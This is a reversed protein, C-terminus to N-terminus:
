PREILNQLIGLTEKKSGAGEEGGPGVCSPCGNACGCQITLEYANQILENHVNFLWNSFGIGAPINDYIVVTPNGDGLPSKPDAHVGLDRTDCMLFLPALNGLLYSLGALGSRIRVASEARQHCNPCLTVLNELRNALEPSSFERFPIKHHVHHSRDKEPIGCAQCQYGDRKRALDRQKKWNSGYDNPDSNWLGESRLREVIEPALTLWYGTTQLERPPLSVDGFGLNENTGWRRKQYGTVQSIVSIEGHTKTGGPITEVRMIELLHVETEQRHRTYYDVLVPRLSATKGILDLDEVLYTEGEHLYIAEPHVMWDASEGDVEGITVPQNGSIDQLVFRDVSANRLSIESAPYQDAMWFFKQGSKHLFGTEQLIELFETVEEPSVRGFSEGAAFPLEFAACRLHDLLILPNNPNILAQEPTQDFFYDPNKALFQDIPSSSALLIALSTELGRGARGAQQWAGAITGPYGALVAASMQGIDIGLELASTAMVVRVRGERLGKEIERRKQPLYGSRYARIITSNDSGDNPSNLQTQLQKLILEVTRRTRGFVITQINYALLDVALRISEQLIGARLGLEQDVIPPNYILFHKLGRAAGDNDIVVVPAEILNEALEGPNGITASTLIFQPRSGYFTAIRRLRRLINAVHSGFVGRYVHMEDLIIFKLGRFFEEWDTHHPLIGTHLMDPNTIILRSQGRIKTRAHGPTDGDYTAPILTANIDQQNQYATELIQRLVSLQDQALAKTPFLYLSRAQDNKLLLDIVPLNYCFTKGSATSTAVTFNKGVQSLEWATFQHTYLDQIGLQRLASVLAPHLNPPLPRFQAERPPM